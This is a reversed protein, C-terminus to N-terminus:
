PLSCPRLTDPARIELLAGLLADRNVIRDTSSPMYTNWCDCDIMPRSSSSILKSPKRLAISSPGIASSSSPSAPIPFVTSHSAPSVAPEIRMYRTRAQRGMSDSVSIAYAASPSRSVSWKLSATASSGPGCRRARSTARSSLSGSSSCGARRPTATAVKPTRAARERSRGSSMPISSTWHSSGSDSLTSANTARRRRCSRIPKSTALRASAAARRGERDRVPFAARGTRASGCRAVPVGSSSRRTKVRSSARTWGLPQELAKM